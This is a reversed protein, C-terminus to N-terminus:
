KEWILTLKPVDNVCGKRDIMRKHCVTGFIVESPEENQNYLEKKWQSIPIKYFKVNSIM